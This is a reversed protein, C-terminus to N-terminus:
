DFSAVDGNEYAILLVVVLQDIVLRCRILKSDIPPSGSISWHPLVMEAIPPSGSISWHPLVMEAISSM